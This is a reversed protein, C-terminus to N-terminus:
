AATVAGASREVVEATARDAFAALPVAGHDGATRHRVAVTGAAAEQEGVVLLYPVKPLTAERIKAGTKEPGVGATARLGVDAAM